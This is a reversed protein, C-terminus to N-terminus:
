PANLTCLCCFMGRVGPADFAGRVISGMSSDVQLQLRADAVALCVEGADRTPHGWQAALSIGRGLSSELHARRSVEHGPLLM